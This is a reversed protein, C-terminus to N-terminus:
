LIAKTQQSFLTDMKLLKSMPPHETDM